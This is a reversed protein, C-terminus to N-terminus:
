LVTSLIQNLDYYLENRSSQPNDVFEKAIVVYSAARDKLDFEDAKRKLKSMVRKGVTRQWKCEVFFIREQTFAVIDIEIKGKHWWRGIKVFPEDLILRLNERVFHEFRHGLFANLKNRNLKYTGLEIGDRNPYVFNFWFDMMPDAIRYIKLRKKTTIPTEAILFNTVVLKELYPYVKRTEIGVFNAIQNPTTNGFAVANLISFYTRMEKFEQSLIFYPERYFYGYRSLFEMELFRTADSYDAAKLLYEPIGGIVMYTILKDEKPMKLFEASYRVSLPQLLMDRTRRGYLPSRASLVEDLMISLLSGSTILLVQSHSLYHDWFTQFAAAFDRSNRLLHPFEDLAIFFKQHRPLHQGIYDWFVKWSDFSIRKLVDDNLFEAFKLKLENMQTYPSANDATYFIGKKGKIFEAILRTKGIRRRGYIVVFGAREKKWESELVQLEEKRDIFRIM